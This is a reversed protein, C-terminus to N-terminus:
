LRVERTERQTEKPIVQGFRIDSEGGEERELSMGMPTHVNIKICHRLLAIRSAHLWSQIFTGNLMMPM